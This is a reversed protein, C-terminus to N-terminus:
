LNECECLDLEVLVVLDGISSPLTKLSKCYSLGLRQLFKLNGISKLLCCLYLCYSLDLEALYSLNGFFTPLMKLKQWYLMLLVGLDKLSQLIQPSQQTVNTKSICLWRLEELCMRMYFKVVDLKNGELNLLQMKSFGKLNKNWWIIYKCRKWIPHSISVYKNNVERLVRELKEFNQWMEFKYHWM